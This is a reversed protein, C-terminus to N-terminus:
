AACEAAANPYGELAALLALADGKDRAARRSDARYAAATAYNRPDLGPRSHIHARVATIIDPM